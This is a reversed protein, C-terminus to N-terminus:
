PTDYVLRLLPKGRYTLWAEVIFRIVYASGVQPIASRWWDAGSGEALWILTGWGVFSLLIVIEQLVALSFPQERKTM